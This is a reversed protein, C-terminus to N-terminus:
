LNLNLMENLIFKLFIDKYFSEIDKPLNEKLTDIKEIINDNLFDNRKNKLYKLIDISKEDFKNNIYEFIFKELTKM